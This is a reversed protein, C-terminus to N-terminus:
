PTGGHVWTRIKQYGSDATTAFPKV